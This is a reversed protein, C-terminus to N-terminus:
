SSYTVHYFMKAHIFASSTILLATSFGNTRSEQTIIREYFPKFDLSAPFLCYVLCQMSAGMGSSLINRSSPEDVEIEPGKSYLAFCLRSTWLTHTLDARISSDYTSKLTPALRPIM